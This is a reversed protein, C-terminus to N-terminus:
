AATSREVAKAAGELSPITPHRPAIKRLLEALEGAHSADHEVMLRPLDALSVRGVGEQVGWREWQAGSLGQLIKLNAARARTFRQVADEVRQDLYRREIALRAGHFDPLEPQPEQLLRAIRLGFGEEELDALHCAHEVFAFHEGDPRERLQAAPLHRAVEALLGAMSGLADLHANM